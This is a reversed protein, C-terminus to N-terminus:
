YYIQCIYIKIKWFNSEAKLRELNIEKRFLTMKRRPTPVLIRTKQQRKIM